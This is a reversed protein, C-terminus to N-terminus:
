ACFLIKKLAIVEWPVGEFIGQQALVPLSKIRQKKQAEELSM